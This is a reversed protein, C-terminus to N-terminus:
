FNPVIRALLARSQAPRPPAASLRYLRIEGPVYRLQPQRLVEIRHRVLLSSGPPPHRLVAILQRVHAWEIGLPSDDVVVWGIGSDGLWRAMTHPDAFRTRYDSGGFNGRSLEESARLVFYTRAPDSAAFAAVLAGEVRTSGAVLVFPNGGAHRIRQAIPAVGLPTVHPPVRVITAGDVLLLVAVVAGMALPLRSALPRLMGALGLASVFVAAPILEVLYRPDADSPVIVQFVLLALAESALAALTPDPASPVPRALRTAGFVFGVVGIVGITTVFGLAYIPLAHSTYSWGWHYAFGLAATKYTLVYWPATVIGVAAAAAWARRDLLRRWEGTLLAYFPPLLALALGDGKTMIAGIACAAFLAARGWGPRRAFSAWSLAAGLMWLTLFNDEMLAILGLMLEPSALVLLGAALGALWGLRRHVLLGAWGAALGGIVAQFAIAAVYSRGGLAFVAAQAVYALPPWHGITVRPYHQYYELAFHLPNSFPAQRLYDLLLLSNVFHGAEDDSVALDTSYAGLALQIAVCLLIFGITFIISPAVLDCLGGEGAQSSRSPAERDASPTHPANHTLSGHRASAFMLRLSRLRLIGTEM